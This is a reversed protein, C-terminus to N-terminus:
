RSQQHLPRLRQRVGDASCRVQRGFLLRWDHVCREDSPCLRPWLSWHARESTTDVCEGSCLSLSCGAEGGDVLDRSGDADVRARGDSGESRDSDGDSADRKPGIAGDPSGSDRSASSDPFPKGDEFGLVSNCSALAVLLASKALARLNMV